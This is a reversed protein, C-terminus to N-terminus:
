ASARVLLSIIDRMPQLPSFQVLALGRLGSGLRNRDTASNHLERLRLVNLPLLLLHLGLVPPLWVLAGYSIFALNSFIAAVRLVRMDKSIFTLLVLTSAIYGTFDSATM